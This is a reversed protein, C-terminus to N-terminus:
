DKTLTYVPEEHGNLETVFVCSLPFESFLNSSLKNHATFDKYKCIVHDTMTVDWGPVSSSIVGNVPAVM